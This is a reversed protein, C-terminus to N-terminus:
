YNTIYCGITHYLEVLASRSFETLICARHARMKINWKMDILIDTYVFFWRRMAQIAYVCLVHICVWRSENNAGSNEIKLVIKKGQTNHRKRRKRDNKSRIKAALFAFSEQSYEGFMRDDIGEKKWEESRATACYEGIKKGVIIYCITFVFTFMNFILNIFIKTFNLKECNGQRLSM